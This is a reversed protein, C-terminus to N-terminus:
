EKNKFPNPMDSVQWVVNAQASLTDGAWIQHKTTMDDRQCKSMVVDHMGVEQEFRIIVERPEMEALFAAGLVDSVWEYYRSNNVHLNTDIDNYRVAYEQTGSWVDGDAWMANKALRAVRKVEHPELAAIFHEPIRTLKRSTMDLLAFLMKIEVLVDDGKLVEFHRISFFSNAEEVWTKVTVQDHVHPLRTIKVATELIIWGLGQAHVEEEGINLSAAQQTSAELSVNILMPLTVQQKADAEYYQITHQTTFVKPM